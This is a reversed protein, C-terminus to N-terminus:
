ELIADVLKQVQTRWSYLRCREYGAEVLQRCYAPNNMVRRVSAVIDNIDFPDCYDAADACRERIAPISSGIVPCGFHMAELPPLPSAEYFSPFLLCAANAYLRGLGALDEVQGRLHVLGAVDCPIEVGGPALYRGRSGVLITAVNDERALRIAARLVGNWNKRQSFSGVYLVYGAQERSVEPGGIAAVSVDLTAGRSQAGAVVLDGDDRWGGNQAVKINKASSPAITALMAKETESVTMIPAARRLLIPLMLGHVLRYRWTYAEPYLRYSLDHLMLVVRRRTFLTVVPATNGLCLLRAGRLSLPLLVQEWVHGTAGGVRDVQTVRLDLDSVDARPECVLRLRLAVKGESVLHDLERTVERAVRQVGTTPQTLFRGNIVIQAVSNDM